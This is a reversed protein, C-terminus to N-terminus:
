EVGVELAAEKNIQQWGLIKWKGNEAKRCLFKEYTKATDGKAKILASAAVTANDKGGVKKVAITDNKQVNYSSINQGESQRKEKDEKFKKEMSEFSNQKGALFEDDYLMRLKKLLADFNKDSLEENYLQNEM